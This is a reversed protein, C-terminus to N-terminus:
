VNNTKINQYIKIMKEGVDLKKGWKAKPKFSPCSNTKLKLVYLFDLYDEISAEYRYEFRDGGIKSFSKMSRLYTKKLNNIDFQPFKKTASNLYPQPHRFCFIKKEPEGLIACLSLYNEYTLAAQKLTLKIQKGGGSYATQLINRKLQQYILEHDLQIYNKHDRTKEQHKKIAKTIDGLDWDSIGLKSKQLVLQYMFTTGTRPPGYILWWNFLHQSLVPLIRRIIKQM